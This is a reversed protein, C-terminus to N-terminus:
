EGEVGGRGPEPSPSPPHPSRGMELTATPLDPFLDTGPAIPIHSGECNQSFAVAPEGLPDYPSFSRKSELFLLHWSGTSFQTFEWSLGPFPLPRLCVVYEEGEELDGLISRLVRVEFDTYLAMMNLGSQPHDPVGAREIREETTATIEVVAIADSREILGDLGPFMGFIPAPLEPVILAFLVLGALLASRPHGRM